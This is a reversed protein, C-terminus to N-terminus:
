VVLNGDSLLQTLIAAEDIANYGNAELGFGAVNSIDNLDLGHLEIILNPTGAAASPASGDFYVELRDSTGSYANFRINIYDDINLDTAGVLIDSFDIIDAEGDTGYTFDRLRMIVGSTYIDDSEFKIVDKGGGGFVSTPQGISSGNEIIIEDQSSGNITDGEDSRGRLIRLGTDIELNGNDLLTDLTLGTIDNLQINLDTGSGDGQVDIELTTNGGSESLIIYNSLTDLSEGQLLSVLNLTDGGSAVSNDNFDLVIDTELDSGDIGTGQDGFQWVFIDNDTEPDGNGFGGRLTDSGIGGFLIDEGSGGVISDNGAGGFLTNNGNVNSDSLNDDGGLLTDNGAFGHIIVGAQTNATLTEDANSGLLLNDAGDDIFGSSIDADVSAGNAADTFYTDSLLGINITSSTTARDNTISASEATLTLAVTSGGILAPSVASFNITLADYDWNLVDVSANGLTSTFSNVGDTLLAGVPIDDVLLESLKDSGVPAVFFTAISISSSVTGVGVLNPSTIAEFYGGNTTNGLTTATVGNNANGAAGDVLQSAAVPANENSKFTDFHVGLDILDQTGTYLQFNSSNFEKLVGNDSLNLLMENDEGSFNGAYVELTYYGDVPAVFSSWAVSGLGGTEDTISSNFNGFSFGTTTVMTQGGLEIHLMDDRIGSFEYAHGAELYILGTVTFLDNSVELVLPDPSETVLGQGFGSSLRYSSDPSVGLISEIDAAVTNLSVLDVTPTRADEVSGDYFNTLLGTSNNTNQSIEIIPAKAFIEVDPDVNFTIVNPTLDTNIGGNSTGGSDQVSFTFNALGAGNANAAPTFLLSAINAVPIIQGATVSIGGITLEGGAPDPLTNIIINELSDGDSPDVFGFDSVSFTYPIDEIITLVNDGGLPEDNVPAVNITVTATDNVGTSDIITYSIQDVGNFNAAPTYTVRGLSDVVVSGGSSTTSQALIVEVGDRFSDNSLVSFSVSRDEVADITDDVASIFPSFSPPTFIDTSPALFNAPLTEFSSEPLLENGVREIFFSSNIFLSDELEQEPGASTPQMNLTELLDITPQYGINFPEQETSSELESRISELLAEDLKAFDGRSVAVYGTVVPFGYQVQLIVGSAGIAYLSDAERVIDNRKSLVQQGSSRILLVDGEVSKIIGLYAKDM